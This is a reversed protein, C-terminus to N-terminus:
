TRAVAQPFAAIRGLTEAYPLLTLEYMEGLPVGQPPM